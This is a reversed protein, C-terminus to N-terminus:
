DVMGIIDNHRTSCYHSYPTTLICIVFSCFRAYFYKRMYICAVIDIKVNIRPKSLPEFKMYRETWVTMRPYVVNYLSM